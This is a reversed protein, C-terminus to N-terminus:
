CVKSRNAPVAYRSSSAIAYYRKSRRTFAPSSDQEMIISVVRDYNSNNYRNTLEPRFIRERIKALGILKVPLPERLDIVLVSPDHKGM